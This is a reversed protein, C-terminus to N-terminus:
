HNTLFTKSTLLGWFLDAFFEQRDGLSSWRGTEDQIKSWEAQWFSAEADQMPRSLTRWYLADALRLDDPEDRLLKSLAGTPDVLRQNILDGNLFHLAQAMSGADLAPAECAAERDCRGLVDLATSELRNDTIRLANTADSDGFTMAVGTADAITGALVEAELPRVMRHSYDNRDNENGPSPRSSRGYADSLCIMRVLPKMRFDHAIFERTLADLLEPHSPPNTARIDDVPDILGRGMLQAWVRNVTARAFYANEPDTVWDAFQQRGDADGALDRTGPIRQTAPRGSVPDTVESGPLSRVVRGQQLKAFIAALGHYDQQRWHDFPHDHCNACRLRVGMMVRTASEALGQPGGASRLFNVPGIDYGDGNATLMEEAVRNWPVDERIQQVLWRQFAEAGAPQLQKSDIALINAWKLAWYDAFEDAALLRDILLQRKRPDPDVAFRQLQDVPPLRGALDLWARRAFAFEDADGSAPIRFRRLKQTIYRDILGSQELDPPGVSTDNAVLDQMPVALRIAKVRDLYRAIVVHEGRRHVRLQQNDTEVSVSEPDDSEWVTWRTVDQRTGDSFTARASVNVSTGPQDLMVSEPHFVVETVTRGGERRAGSDIWRELWQYALSGADFREGGGHEMSETAKRLLLSKSADFLNVRRGELDRTLAFHDKKPNSGFLSLSLGGRGIAAGHCAGANCGYRTLLPVVQTDFDIEVPIDRSDNAQIASGQGGSEIAMAVASWALLLGCLGTTIHIKM